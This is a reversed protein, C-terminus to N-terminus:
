IKSKNWLENMENFTMNKLDNNMEKAKLEMFEFRRIFKDITYNLANEPDIDLFRSVNVVSFLLDGVEETIKDRNSGKYVKKVENLEELIKDMAGEVKQWDFGIKSAKKQVKEARILAPLSIAIHKLVDTYSTLKQEKIKIKDWREVVTESSDAIEDGFVHPHRNIMKNCINGIVDNINFYGEEKGIQSHFMVQFLVDGLEEIIMDEDKKDIAELVEYSEEIIDRKISDHDQEKDWPCGNEGRLIDIIKVLDYFDKNNDLDKPIYISTLYDIDQQRDLKYLPIKRINESDKIGASRVFYIETDDSYYDLLSLKVESAIFNNYVQTIITGIRKDMIQNKIDFADIVKIGDIPDIELAEMVADIFSVAPLINVKISKEKCLSLLLDVSKEAVLPHGPVAYVIDGLKEHQSLLDEAISNYVEDFSESNEYENDYTFFNIGEDRLFKVTPHKETRLFINTNKKILQVTGITLAELSGPGLGVVNIM